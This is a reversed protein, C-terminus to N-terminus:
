RTKTYSNTKRVSLAHREHTWAELIENQKVPLFGLWRIVVKQALAM